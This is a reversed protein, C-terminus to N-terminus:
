AACAACMNVCARLVRACAQACARESPRVRMWASACRRLRLCVCVCAPLWVCPRLWLRDCVLSNTRAHQSAVIRCHVTPQAADARSADSWRAVPLARYLGVVDLGCSVFWVRVFQPGSPSEYASKTRIDHPNLASHCRCSFRFADIVFAGFGFLEAFTSPTRARAHLGTLPYGLTCGVVGLTGQTGRQTGVSYGGHLGSYGRLVGGLM